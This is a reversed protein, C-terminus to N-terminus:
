FLSGMPSKQTVPSTLNPRVSGTPPKVKASFEGFQHIAGPAIFASTMLGGFGLKKGVGKAVGAVGKALTPLFAQKQLIEGAIKIQEETFM